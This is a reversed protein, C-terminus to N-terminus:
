CGQGGDVEKLKRYSKMRRMMVDNRWSYGYKDYIIESIRGWSVGKERLDEILGRQEQSIERSNDWTTMMTGLKELNVARHKAYRFLVLDRAKTLSDKATVAIATDGDHSMMGFTSLLRKLFEANSSTAISVYQAALSACGDGDCVGQLFSHRWREPAAIIWDANVPSHTKTV